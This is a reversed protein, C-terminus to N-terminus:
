CELGLLLALEGALLQRRESKSASIRRRGSPDSFKVKKGDAKAQTFFDYEKAEGQLQLRCLIGARLYRSKLLFSV